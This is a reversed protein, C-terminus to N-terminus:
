VLELEPMAPRAKPLPIEVADPVQLASKRRLDLYL